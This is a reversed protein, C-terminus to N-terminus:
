FSESDEFRSRAEDSAFTELYILAGDLSACSCILDHLSGRSEGSYVLMCGSLLESRLGNEVLPFSIASTHVFYGTCMM